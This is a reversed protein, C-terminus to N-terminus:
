TLACTIEYMYLHPEAYCSKLKETGFSFHQM